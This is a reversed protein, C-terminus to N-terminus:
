VTVRRLWYRRIFTVAPEWHSAYEPHDRQVERVVKIARKFDGHTYRSAFELLMDSVESKMSGLLAIISIYEAPSRQEAEHLLDLFEQENPSLDSYKM